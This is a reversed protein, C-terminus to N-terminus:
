NSFFHDFLAAFTALDSLNNQMAGFIFAAEIPPRKQADPMVHLPSSLELEISNRQLL